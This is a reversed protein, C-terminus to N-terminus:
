KGCALIPRNQDAPGDLYVPAGVRAKGPQSPQRSIEQTPRSFATPFCEQLPIINDIKSEPEFVMRGEVLILAAVLLNYAEGGLPDPPRDSITAIRVGQTIRNRGEPNFNYLSGFFDFALSYGKPDYITVHGSQDADAETYSLRGSFPATLSTGPPLNFAVYYYERENVTIKIVKGQGCLDLPLIGCSVLPAPTPTKTPEPTPSSTPIATPKPTETATPSPKPIATATETPVATPVSTETPTSISRVEAPRQPTCAALMISVPIGLGAAVGAIIRSKRIPGTLANAAAIDSQSPGLIKERNM